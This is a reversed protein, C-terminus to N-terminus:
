LKTIEPEQVMNNKAPKVLVNKLNYEKNQWHSKAQAESADLHWDLFTELAKKGTTFKDEDITANFLDEKLKECQADFAPLQAEELSQRKENIIFELEHKLQGEGEATKHMLTVVKERDELVDNWLQEGGKDLKDRCYGYRLLMYNLTNTSIHESAVKTNSKEAYAGINVNVPSALVSGTGVSFDDSVTVKQKIRTVQHTFVPKNDEKRSWDPSFFRLLLTTGVELETTSSNIGALVSSQLVEAPVGVQTAVTSTLKALLNEISMSGTVKLEVDIHDGCRVRYPNDVRKHTVAIGLEPGVSINKVHGIAHINAEFSTVRHDIPIIRSFSVLPQLKAFDYVLDPNIIKQNINNISELVQDEAATRNEKECLPLALTALMIEASQLIGGRGKGQVGWAKEFLHKNHRAERDGNDSLRVLRAYEDVQSGIMQAADNLASATIDPNATASKDFLSEVSTFHEGLAMQATRTYLPALKEIEKQYFPRLTKDHLTTVMDTQINVDIHRKTRTAKANAGISLVGGINLDASQNLSGETATLDVPTKKLQFPKSYDLVIEKGTLNQLKQQLIDQQNFAKAQHQRLSHVSILANKLKQSLRARLDKTEDSFGRHKKYSDLKNAYKEDLYDYMSPYNHSKSQITRSGSIESNLDVSSNKEKVIKLKELAATVNIKATLSATTKNKIERGVGVIGEDDVSRSYEVSTENKLKGAVTVGATENDVLGGSVSFNCSIKSSHSTDPRSDVLHKHSDKDRKDAINQSIYCSYLHKELMKVIQAVESTSDLHKDRIQYLESALKRLDQSPIVSQGEQHLKELREKLMSLKQCAIDDPAIRALESIVDVVPMCYVLNQQSLTVPENEAPLPSSITAQSVNRISSSFTNPQPHSTNDEIHKFGTLVPANASHSQPLSTINQM